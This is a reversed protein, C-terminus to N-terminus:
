KNRTNTRTYRCFFWGSVSSISRSFTFISSSRNSFSFCRIKSEETRIILNVIRGNRCICSNERGVGSNFPLKNRLNPQISPHFILQRSSRPRRFLLLRNSPFPGLAGKILRLGHVFIFVSAVMKNNFGQSPPLLFFLKVVHPLNSRFVLYM